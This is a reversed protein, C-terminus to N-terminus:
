PSEQLCVALHGCVHGVGVNAELATRAQRLERAIRLLDASSRSAALLEATEGTDTRGSKRELASATLVEARRLSEALQERKYKELKSLTRILELRDGAACAALLRLILPDEESGGSLIREAPGLFGGGQRLANALAGDDAEPFRERLWPLAESAPVPSLNLRVCRSRVTPLLAETRDTLLLFAGYEPPEELVNLLANQAEIRLDQARPFVYIKKKGENPRVYLDTKAERAMGVTVTKKEPDDVFIVDPHAGDLVKRCQACVCCPPEAATCEMAACLLRVLTRKGSGEPGCILYSHSLKGEAMAASLDRKLEANGLFGRLEM